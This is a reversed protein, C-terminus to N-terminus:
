IEQDQLSSKKEAMRSFVIWRVASAGIQGCLLGWAVGLVGQHFVLASAITMTFVLGTVSAKLSVDPRELALLASAAPLTMAFVLTVVSLVTITARNGDFQNGYLIRLAEDGFLFAGICFCILTMGMLLTAKRVVRQMERSGNDALAQVIRPTLVQGMGLVFPNSLHVVTMCAAFIGTAKNGLIFAMLWLLLIDSNLQGVIRGALVWGGFSLNRQIVPFIQDRRVMLNSRSLIIWTLAAIANATGMTAYVTVASLLEIAALAMICSIQLAGVCLDLQLATKSNLHAFACQRAFERLIYFPLAASLVYLVSALGAPGGSITIVMGWGAVGGAAIVALLGCQLLVAGRYETRAAGELRNAYITYPMAILAELVSFVIIVLTFGLAYNALEEPGGSRGVMVTTVFNTGSVVMQDVLSVSCKRATIGFLAASAKWARGLLSVSPRAPDLECIPTPINPM